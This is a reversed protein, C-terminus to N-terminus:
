HVVVSGTIDVCQFAPNQLLLNPLCGFNQPVTLKARSFAVDVPQVALFADAASGVLGDNISIVGMESLFGWEDSPVSGTGYEEAMAIQFAIEALIEVDTV